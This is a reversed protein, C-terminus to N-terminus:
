LSSTPVQEKLSALFARKDHILQARDTEFMLLGRRVHTKQSARLSCLEGLEVQTLYIQGDLKRRDLERETQVIQEAFTSM